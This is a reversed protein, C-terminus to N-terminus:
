HWRHFKEVMAQREKFERNSEVVWDILRRLRSREPEPQEVPRSEFDLNKMTRKGLRGTHGAAKIKQPKRDQWPLMM